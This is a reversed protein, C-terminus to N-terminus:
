SGLCKFFCVSKLSLNQTSGLMNGSLFAGYFSVTHIGSLVFFELPIIDQFVLFDLKSDQAAASDLALAFFTQHGRRKRSQTIRQYQFPRGYVKKLATNNYTDRYFM